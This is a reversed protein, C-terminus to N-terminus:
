NLLLCLMEFDHIFTADLEKFDIDRHKYISLVFAKLYIYATYYMVYTRRSRIKGVMKDFDDNHQKFVSLLSNNTTGNGLFRNKVKLTTVFGDKDILDNYCNNICVRIVDLRQNIVLAKGALCVAM